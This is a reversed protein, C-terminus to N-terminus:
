KILEETLELIQPAIKEREKKVVYLYVPYAICVLVLGIVGIVIGVVMAALRELGIGTGLDTMCISMGLGLVLAGIVGIIIAYLNGKKAVGEDLRRLTDMKSEEESQYKQRIRKIEEQEEASYTYSFGNKKKDM